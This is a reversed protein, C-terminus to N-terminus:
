LSIDEGNIYKRCVLEYLEGLPEVGNNKDAYNNRIREIYDTKKYLKRALLSFPTPMNENAYILDKAYLSDFDWLQSSRLKLDILFGIDKIVLLPYKFWQRKRRIENRTEGIGIIDPVKRFSDPADTGPHVNQHFGLIPNLLRLLKGYKPVEKLEERNYCKKYYNDVVLHNENVTAALMLAAAQDRSLNNPNSGWHLPNNTRCYVGPVVTLNHIMNLYYENARPHNIMKLLFSLIATRYASDGPDGDKQVVLNHADTRDFIEQVLENIPKM